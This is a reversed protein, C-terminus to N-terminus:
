QDGIIAYAEYRVDALVIQSCTNSERACQSCSEPLRTGSVFCPSSCGCRVNRANRSFRSGSTTRRRSLVCAGMPRRTNSRSGSAMWCCDGAWCGECGTTTSLRCSGSMPATGDLGVCSEAPAREWQQSEGNWTMMNVRTTLILESLAVPLPVGVAARAARSRRTRPTSCPLSWSRPRPWPAQRRSAWARPPARGAAPESRRCGSRARARRGAARTARRRSWTWPGVRWRHAHGTEERGM